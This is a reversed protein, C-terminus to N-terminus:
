TVDVGQRRAQDRLVQGIREALADDSDDGSARPELPNFYFVPATRTPQASAQQGSAPADPEEHTAIIPARHVALEHEAALRTATPPPL